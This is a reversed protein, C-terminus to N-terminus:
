VCHEYFCSSKMELVYNDVYGAVKKFKDAPRGVISTDRDDKTLEKRYKDHYKFEVSILDTVLITKERLEKYEEEKYLMKVIAKAPTAFTLLM